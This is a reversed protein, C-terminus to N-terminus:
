QKTLSYVQNDNGDEPNFQVILLESGKMKMLRANLEYNNSNSPFFESGFYETHNVNFQYNVRVGALKHTTGDKGQRRETIPEATILKGITVKTMRRCNYQRKFEPGKLIIYIFGGFIFLITAARRISIWDWFIWSADKKM